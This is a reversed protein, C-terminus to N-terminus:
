RWVGLALIWAISAALMAASGLTGITGANIMEGM